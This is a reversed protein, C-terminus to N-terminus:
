IKPKFAIFNMAKTTMSHGFVEVGVLLLTLGAYVGVTLLTDKSIHTKTEHSRVEQLKLLEEVAAKRESSGIPNAEIDDHAREMAIEIRSERRKFLSM